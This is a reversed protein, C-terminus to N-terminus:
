IESDHMRTTRSYSYLHFIRFCTGVNDFMWNGEVDNWFYYSVEYVFNQDNYSNVYWSGTVVGLWRPFETPSNKWAYSM